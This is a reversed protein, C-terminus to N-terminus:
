TISLGEFNKREKVTFHRALDPYMLTARDFLSNNFEIDMVELIQVIEGFTIDDEPTFLLQHAQHSM